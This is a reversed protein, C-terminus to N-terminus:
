ELHTTSIRTGIFPSAEHWFAINVAKHSIFNEYVDLLTADIEVPSKRPSSMSPFHIVLLITFLVVGPKCLDAFSDRVSFIRGQPFGEFTLTGPLMSFNDVGGAPSFFPAGIVGPAVFIFVVEGKWFVFREELPEMVMEGESVVLPLGAM